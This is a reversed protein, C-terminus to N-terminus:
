ESAALEAALVARVTAVIVATPDTCAPEETRTLSAGAQVVAFFCEMQWNLNQDTRFAGDRRGRIVLERIRDAPEQHPRRLEWVGLEAGADARLGAMDGLVSWSTAVLEAISADPSLAPDLGALTANAESIVHLLATGVLARRSSFHSYLTGRSVGAAAALDEM